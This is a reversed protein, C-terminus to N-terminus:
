QMPLLHIQIRVRSIDATDFSSASNYAGIMDLLILREVPTLLRYAAHNKMTTYLPIFPGTLRYTNRQQNKYKKKPM